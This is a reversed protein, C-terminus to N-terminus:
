NCTAPTAAFRANPYSRTKRFVRNLLFHTPVFFLIPLAGMLTALYAGASMWSQPKADDLGFVYNVNLPTKPDPLHAGAPPLLFFSILCLTWALATWAGLARRDYGLKAVLVM